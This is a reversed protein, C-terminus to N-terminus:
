KGKKISYSCISLQSLVKLVQSLDLDFLKDSDIVFNENLEFFNLAEQFLGINYASMVRSTKSHKSVKSLDISNPKLYNLLNCLIVGNRLEMGFKSITLSDKDLQGKLYEPLCGCMCLWKAALKWENTKSIQCKKQM